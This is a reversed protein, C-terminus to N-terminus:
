PRSCAHLVCDEYREIHREKGGGMDLLSLFYLLYLLMPELDLSNSILSQM